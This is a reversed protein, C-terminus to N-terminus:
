RARFPEYIGGGRVGAAFADVQRGIAALLPTDSGEVGRVPRELYKEWEVFFQRLGERTLRVGGAADPPDFHEPRLTKLNCSRLVFREVVPARWEELLDV